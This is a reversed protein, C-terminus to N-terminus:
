YQFKEISTKMEEALGTLAESAGAIEEMSATQEETSAAAEETGAANEESIAALNEMIQIIHGKKDAMELGSQSLVDISEKMKAIAHSIGEFKENTNEVSRTQAEVISAVGGITMVAKESKQSLDLIIKAIEDTFQNSQEALKRIEDAVVAFGRGTDGARAAEIAANLALLNTQDAISKIMRSANEIKKASVNTEVIVGAVERSAKESDATKEVLTKLAEIGKDRLDNVEQVAEKLSTVMHQNKVVHDGLITVHLVGQETERAQNAAGNAIEEVTRAVETIATVSQGSTATLQESAAAVHQSAVAVRKILNRLNAQMKMIARAISGIEDSRKILKVPSYKEDEILNYDALRDIIQSLYVIPRAISKSLLVAGMSGLLIVLGSVMLIIFQLHYNGELVEKEYTGIGLTWTTQPIPAMATLRKEGALEYNVMELQGLGVNQLAVAFSKLTGGTEIEAFANRQQTIMERDPHAYFTSDKGLIFAYGTEGIGLNDTIDNLTTGDRRGILVGVVKGDKEIPVAFMVVVSGTVKSVIVDSVNAQGQFAKKIYDREGLEATEGTKVYQATGNPLVVAIDLYGLREIDTKLAEKQLPWEMGQVTERNAVEQLIGIRMALTTEIHKASEDAYQLMAKEVENVTADSSFKIASLGLILSAGLVLTGTFVTIRKSLNFKM